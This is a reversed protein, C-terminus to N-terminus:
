NFGYTYALGFDGDTRHNVEKHQNYQGTGTIIQLADLFADHLNGVSDNDVFGITVIQRFSDNGLTLILTHNFEDTRSGFAPFSVGVSARSQGLFAQKLKPCYHALEFLNGFFATGEVFTTFRLSNGPNVAHNVLM